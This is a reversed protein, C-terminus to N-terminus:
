KGNGSKPADLKVQELVFKVVSQKNEAVKKAADGIVDGLDNSETLTITVIANLDCDKSCQINPIPFRGSSVDALKRKQITEDLDFKGLPLDVAIVEKSQVGQDTPALGNVAITAKLDVKHSSRDFLMWWSWPVFWRTSAVKAKTNNLTVETIRFEVPDASLEGKVELAIQTSANRLDTCSQSSILEKDGALYRRFTLEHPHVTVSNPDIRSALLAEARASYSAHYRKSEDTIAAATRDVLFGVVASAAMAAIPLAEAKVAKRDLYLCAKSPEAADSKSHPPVFFNGVEACGSVLVACVATCTISLAKPM